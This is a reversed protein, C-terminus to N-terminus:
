HILFGDLGHTDYIELFKAYTYIRSNEPKQQDMIVIRGNGIKSDLHMMFDVMATVFIEDELDEVTVSKLFHFDKEQFQKATAAMTFVGQTKVM